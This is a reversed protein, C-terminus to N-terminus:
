SGSQVYQPRQHLRVVEWDMPGRYETEALALEDVNTALGLNKPRGCNAPEVRISDDGAFPPFSMIASPQYAAARLAIVRTAGTLHVM